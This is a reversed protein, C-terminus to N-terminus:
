ELGYNHLSGIQSTIIDTRLPLLNTYQPRYINATVVQEPAVLPMHHVKTNSPSIPAQKM